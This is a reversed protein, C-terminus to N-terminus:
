DTGRDARGCASSASSFESTAISKQVPDYRYLTLLVWKIQDTSHQKSDRIGDAISQFINEFQPLSEEPIGLGALITKLIQEHLDKTELAWKKHTNQTSQLRM